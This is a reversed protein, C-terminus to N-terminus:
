VYSEASSTLTIHTHTGRHSSPSAKTPSATATRLRSLTGAVRPISPPPSPITLARSAIASLSVPPIPPDPRIVAVYLQPCNTTVIELALDTIESWGLDLMQTLSRLSHFDNSPSAGARTPSPFPPSPAAHRPTTRVCRSGRADERSRAYRTTMSRERGRSSYHEYTKARPALLRSPRPPSRRTSM